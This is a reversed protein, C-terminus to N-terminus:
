LDKWAEEDEKSLWNKALASESALMCLLAENMNEKKLPRLEVRDSYVVVSIKTGERFGALNRATNPICIQGKETITATRIDKIEENM